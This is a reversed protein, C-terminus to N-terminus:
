AEERAEILSISRGPIDNSAMQLKRPVKLRGDLVPDNNDALFDMGTTLKSEDRQECGIM